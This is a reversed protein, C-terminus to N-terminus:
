EDGRIHHGMTIHAKITAEHRVRNREEIEEDTMLCNDIVRQVERPRESESWMDFDLSGDSNGGESKSLPGHRVLLDSDYSWVPDDSPLTTMLWRWLGFNKHEVMIMDQYRPDRSDRMTDFFRRLDARNKMLKQGPLQVRLSVFIVVTAGRQTLGALEGLSIARSSTLMTNADISMIVLDGEGYPLFSMRSSDTRCIKISLNPAAWETESIREIENCSTLAYGTQYRLSDFTKKDKENAIVIQDVGSVAQLRAQRIELGLFTGIFWDNYLSVGDGACLDLTITRRHTRGLFSLGEAAHQHARMLFTAFLVNKYPSIASHGSM